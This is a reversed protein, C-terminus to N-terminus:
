IDFDPSAASVEKDQFAHWRTDGGFAHRPLKQM